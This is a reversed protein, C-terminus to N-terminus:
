LIEKKISKNFTTRFSYVFLIFDNNIIVKNFQIFVTNMNQIAKISM